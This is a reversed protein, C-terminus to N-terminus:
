EAKRRTEEGSMEKAKRLREAFAPDIPPSAPRPGFWDAAAGGFLMNTILFAVSGAGLVFAGWLWRTAVEAYIAEWAYLIGALTASVICFTLVWFVIAKVIRHPLYGKM